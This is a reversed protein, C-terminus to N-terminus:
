QHADMGENPSRYAQQPHAPNESITYVLQKHAIMKALYKSQLYNQNRGLLNALQAARLPRWRCLKEIVTEMRAPSPKGGLRRIEELIEAPVQDGEIADTFGEPQAVLGEPQAMSGEPQAAYGEPNSAITPISEGEGVLLLDTPTYYTARGRGKAALLGADRLKILSRSAALTEVGTIDRFMANTIVGTERVVVLVRAEDDSLGLHSYQRLWQVDSEGLLHHVLLMLGFEDKERDSEFFPPTLNARHMLERMTRIGSGKTEALGAEHLIAAISPNRPLSGPEGLREEPKLSFGVNRIEIRNSYRIIQVPSATRYSRHMLANVIAERIVTRPILPVDRRQIDGPVLAFAAPIDALVRQVVRPILTMLPGRLDSSTFRADPSRIWERGESLIYDVRTMPQLRRLAIEKGFVILGALTLCTKDKWTTTANLAHLLEEDTYRLESADRNVAARRLRYERLADADIDDYSTGEIPTADYPTGSRGQYLVALDEETCHQDTGAIRRYAGRPLGESKIYVPKDGPASEPIFAIVLAREEVQEVFIEPRVPPHLTDRCQTALDSQTKGPNEVGVVDFTSGFLGGENEEVGFVIYGGRLGPENALASVTQLVSNGIKGSSKAEIETTEDAIRLRELIESASLM